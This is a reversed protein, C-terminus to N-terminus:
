EGGEVHFVQDVKTPTDTFSTNNGSRRAEYRACDPFTHTEFLVYERLVAPGECGSVWVPPGVLDAPKNTHLDDPQGTQGRGPVSQRSASRTCIVGTVLFKVWTEEV